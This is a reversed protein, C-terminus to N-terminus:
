SRWFRESTCPPVSPCCLSSSSSRASVASRQQVAALVAWLRSFLRPARSLLVESLWRTCLQPTLRQPYLSAAPAPTCHGADQLVCALSLVSGVWLCCLGLRCLVNRCFNGPKGPEEVTPVKHRPSQTVIKVTNDAEKSPRSTTLQEPIVANPDSPLLPM